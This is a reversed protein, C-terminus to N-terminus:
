IESALSLHKVTHTHTISTDFPKRFNKVYVLLHALVRSPFFTIQINQISDKILHAKQLCRRGIHQRRMKKENGKLLM